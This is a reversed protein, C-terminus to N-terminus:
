AARVKLRTKVLGVDMGLAKALLYITRLQPVRTERNGLRAVTDHSVGAAEAFQGWTYREYALDFMEDVLADLRDEYDRPLNM